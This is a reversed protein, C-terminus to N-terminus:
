KSGRSYVVKLIGEKEQELTQHDHTVFEDDVRILGCHSRKGPDTVPDKMINNGVGEIEVYTAKIAFGLTDRSHNRLIGGVGVVLNSAAWGQSKLNNLTKEYRGLYMGDGYLVGIKENLEKYGKNNITYGFIEGLLNVVGKSEWDSISDPNGCIIKEPDGSDPRIVLKGDRKCIQTRLSNLMNIFDFLSYTDAVVSVIGTPYIDLINKLAERENKGYSCMVSHETAPVSFMELNLEPYYSDAYKQALLADSGKFNLLHAMGSLGASEESSDGRYGFDHVSFDKLVMNEDSCTEDYFCDVVLRYQASCTAVTSTFWVKLILSEIFGVCWYFEPRTNTITMLATGIPYEKGEELSKIELPWYGLNGLSVLNEKVSCPCNGLVREYMMILDIVDTMTIPKDIYEKIYYQLGFWKVFSFNKSSRTTLYSYVKDVGPAYQQMHGLKYVDTQLLINM